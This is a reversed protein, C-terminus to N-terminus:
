TPSGDGTRRWHESGGGFEFRSREETGMVVRRAVRNLDESTVLDIRRCMEAAGVRRGHVMFQRAVDEVEMTKSELGMLVSSKLQNKARSLEEAEIKRTMLILQNCLIHVIKEHADRSPPFSAQIGFLGSDLYSYSMMNCNEIWHWASLVSTYLRTYMGKGPGGASFSGGGGMLSMLTALAYIDPDSMSPAEFAIYIHSLVKDDPNIPPPFDTSDIIEIGGTYQAPKTLSKQLTKQEPTPPPIDRFHKESLSVLTNHDMGVGAIMIRDPTYWTGRYEHLAAPTMVELNEIPCLLPRGITEGGATSPRGDSRGYAIAHLVEPLMVEPRHSLDEIEFLTTKRVEDVEEPLFLPNKIVESLVEMVKPLDKPFLASQYMICERSSQAVVNGGFEELKSALQETSLNRTSKWAMRDLVHSCGSLRDTEYRTGADVYVGVAM